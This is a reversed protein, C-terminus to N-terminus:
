RPKKPLMLYIEDPPALDWERLADFAAVHIDKDPALRLTTCFQWVVEAELNHPAAADLMARICDLQETMSPSESTGTM